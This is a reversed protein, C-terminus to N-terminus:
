SALRTLVGGIDGPVGSVIGRPKKETIIGGPRCLLDGAPLQEGVVSDTWPELDRTCEACPSVAVEPRRSHHSASGACGDDSPLDVLLSQGLSLLPDGGITTSRSSFGGGIGENSNFRGSCKGLLGKHGLCGLYM